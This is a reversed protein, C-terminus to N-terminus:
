RKLLKCTASLTGGTTVVNDFLVVEWDGECFGIEEDMGGFFLSNMETSTVASYNERLTEAGM